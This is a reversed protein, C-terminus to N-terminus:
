LKFAAAPSFDSKLGNNAIARVSVHYTGPPLGQIRCVPILDISTDAPSAFASEVDNDSFPASASKIYINYGALDHMPDLASNDQYATPPAWSLM